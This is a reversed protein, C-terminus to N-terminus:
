DPLMRNITKDRLVFQHWLAAVVHLLILAMFVYPAVEHFTLFLAHLDDDPAGLVQPATWGFVSLGRGYNTFLLGSVPMLFMFGYLAWHVLWALAAQWLAVKRSAPPRHTARWFLRVIALLLIACGVLRHVEQLERRTPGPPLFDFSWGVALMGFILFALLWHFAMATRTYRTKTMATRAFM